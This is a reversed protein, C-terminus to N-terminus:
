LDRIRLERNKSKEDNILNTINDYIGRYDFQDSFESLTISYNNTSIRDNYEELAKLLYKMKISNPRKNKILYLETLKKFFSM